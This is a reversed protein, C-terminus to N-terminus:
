ISACCSPTSPPLEDLIGLLAYDASSCFGDGFMRELMPEVRRQGVFVSRAGLKLDSSDIPLM